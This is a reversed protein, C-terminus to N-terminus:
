PKRNIDQCSIVALVAFNIKNIHAIFCRRGRCLFNGAKAQKTNRYRDIWAVIAKVPLSDRLGTLMVGHRTM